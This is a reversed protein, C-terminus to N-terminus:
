NCVITTEIVIDDVFTGSITEVVTISDEDFVQVDLGPKVSAVKRCMDSVTILGQILQAHIEAIEAAMATANDNVIHCGEGVTNKITIDQM